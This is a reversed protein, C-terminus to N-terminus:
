SPFDFIKRFRSFQHTCGRFEHYATWSHWGGKDSRRRILGCDCPAYNRYTQPIAPRSRQDLSSFSLRIQRDFFFPFHRLKPARVVWHEPLALRPYFLVDKSYIRSVPWFLDIQRNTVFFKLLIPSALALLNNYTKKKKAISLQIASPLSGVHRRPPAGESLTINELQAM